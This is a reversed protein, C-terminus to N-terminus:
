WRQQRLGDMTLRSLGSSWPMVMHDCTGPGSIMSSSKLLLATKLLKGGTASQWFACNQNSWLAVSGSPSEKTYSNQWGKCPAEGSKGAGAGGSGGGKVSTGYAAPNLSAKGMVESGLKVMSGSVPHISPVGVAMPWYTMPTHTLSYRSPSSMQLFVRSKWNLTVRHSGLMMAEMGSCSSRHSPRSTVKSFLEM